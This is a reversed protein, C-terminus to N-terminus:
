REVNLAKRPIFEPLRTLLEYDITEAMSAQEAASLIQQHDTGIITVISKQNVEPIDTVDVTTMNMAIRGIIPARKGCILVSARNSWLRPLGEAYGCPLVAIRTRRPTVFTGGYGVLEGAEIWTLSVITSLFKLAPKLPSQSCQPNQQYWVTETASSPWLGYTSFGVRVLDYWAEPILLTATSASIHNEYGPHAALFANFRKIQSITQQNQPDESSAFHSFLGQIKILPNQKLIMLVQNLQDHDLGLRNLGTNVKLHIILPPFQAKLYQLWTLQDEHTFELELSQEQAQMVLDKTRYAGAVLIRKSFQNARLLLGEAITNVVAGDVGPHNQITNAVALFGHGYANSKIVSFLKTTQPLIKRFFSLNDTIAQHDIELWYPYSDNM